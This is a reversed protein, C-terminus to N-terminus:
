LTDETGPAADAITTMAGIGAVLTEAATGAETTVTGAPRGTAAAAEQNLQAFAGPVANHLGFCAM